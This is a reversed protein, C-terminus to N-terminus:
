KGTTGRHIRIEFRLVAKSRTGCLRQVCAKGAESWRGIGHIRRKQIAPKRVVDRLPVAAGAHHLVPAKFNLVLQSGIKNKAHPVDSCMPSAQARIKYLGVADIGLVIEQSCLQVIGNAACRPLGIQSAKADGLWAPKPRQVAVAFRDPLQQTGEWMVLVIVGGAAKFVNPLRRIVGQFRLQFPPEAVPQVQERRVSEGLGQGIGVASKWGKGRKGGIIKTCLIRKVQFSFLGQAILVGWMRNHEAIEVFEGCTRPLFVQAVADAALHETPPLYASHMSILGARRHDQVTKRLRRRKAAAIELETAYGANRDEVRDFRGEVWCQRSATRQVGISGKATLGVIVVEVTCRKEILIRIAEDSLATIPKSIQRQRKAVYATLMVEALIKRNDFPRR